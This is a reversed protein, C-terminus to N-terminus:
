DNMLVEITTNDLTAVFSPALNTIAFSMDLILEEIELSIVLTDVVRWVTPNKVKFEM